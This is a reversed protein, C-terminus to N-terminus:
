SASAVSTRTVTDSSRIRTSSSPAPMSKSPSRWYKLMPEGSFSCFGLDGRKWRSRIPCNPIPFNALREAHPRNSTSVCFPSKAARTIKSL